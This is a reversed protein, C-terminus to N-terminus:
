DLRYVGVYSEALMTAAARSSVVQDLQAVQLRHQFADDGPFRHLMATMWWAFHEARWVRRLATPSYADLLAQGGTRYHEALARSLVDVDAVALNLGKAGTPPVIHAADGALFLRGFRMPEVVFSRMAIVGKQVIRGEALRWDGDTELRAHLEEWIRADPWDRADDKPDCQLYLRQIHPSRTSVLAFGRAHRAYILEATSPPAEVLIGLWGFPYDHAHETLRAAPISPRSVGHFGDCGAIFECVLERSAGDRDRFGIRPTTGDIDHLTVDAVEFRIKGGADLRLKVLDKILEHQPYLTIARGGTLDDFDIRHTRRDFRLHIGRHVSGERLMREGVGSDRLLDVTGQELVAARLVSEIEDRSHIELVVSDIGERALLHSLLLGAPGAGIIGVQTRM